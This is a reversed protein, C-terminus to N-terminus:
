VDSKGKLIDRLSDIEKNNQWWFFLVNLIYFFVIGSTGYFVVNAASASTSIRSYISCGLIWFVSFVFFNFLVKKQRYNREGIQRLIELKLQANM